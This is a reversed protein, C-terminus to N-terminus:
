KQKWSSLSPQLKHPRKVGHAVADATGGVAGDTTTITTRRSIEEDEEGARLVSAGTAATGAIEGAIWAPHEADAVLTRQAATTGEAARM